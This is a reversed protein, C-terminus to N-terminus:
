LLPPLPLGRGSRSSRPQFVPLLHSRFWERGLPSTPSVGSGRQPPGFGECIIGPAMVEYIRWRAAPCPTPTDEPGRVRGQAETRVGSSDNLPGSGLNCFRRPSGAHARPSGADERTVKEPGLPGWSPGLPAWSATLVPWSAGSVGLSRELVGLIPGLRGLFGGLRELLGGLPRM